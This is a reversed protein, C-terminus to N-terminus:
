GNCKKKKGGGFLVDVAGEISDDCVIIKTGLGNLVKQPADGANTALLAFCDHLCQRALQQWRQSGTGTKPAQRTELLCALGDSERPGYILLQDAQGLHLDVDMGNTSAVAVNPRDPDPQLNGTLLSHLEPQAVIPGPQYDMVTLFAEAQSRATALMEETCPPLVPESIENEARNGTIGTFPILVMSQAGAAAMKRAIAALHCDNVGPFVTTQITVRTGAAALAQVAALQQGALLEASETLPITKRGPRIWAYIKQIVAPDVGNVQVTIRAFDQDALRAVGAAGDLALTTLRQRIAPYRNRLLQVTELLLDRDALPDGPGSFEVSGIVTGKEVLDTIWTLAQAPSLAPLPKSNEAFRIKYNARPAIPVILGDVPVSEAAAPNSESLSLLTMGEEPNICRVTLCPALGM